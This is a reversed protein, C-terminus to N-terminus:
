LNKFILTLPEGVIGWEKTSFTRMLETGSSSFSVSTGSLKCESKPQFVLLKWAVEMFTM